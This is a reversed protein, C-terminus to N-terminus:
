QNRLEIDEPCRDQCILFRLELCLERREVKCVNHVLRITDYKLPQRLLVSLPEDKFLAFQRSIFM